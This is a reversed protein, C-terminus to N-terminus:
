QIKHVQSCFDFIDVASELAHSVENPAKEGPFGFVCLFSCGQPPSLRCVRGTPMCSWAPGAAPGASSPCRPARESGSRMTIDTFKMYSGTCRACGLRLGRLAPKQEPVTPQAPGNAHTSRGVREPPWPGISGPAPNPTLRLLLEPALFGADGPWTGLLSRSM